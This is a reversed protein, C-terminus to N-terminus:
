LSVVYYWVHIDITSDGLTPNAVTIQARVATNEAITPTAIIAQVMDTATSNVIAPYVYQLLSTQYLGLVGAAIYTTTGYDIEAMSAQVVIAKGAGPAPIITVPSSNLSLINASSLTVKRYQLVANGTPVYAATASEKKQSFALVCVCAVAILIITFIKKYLTKKM